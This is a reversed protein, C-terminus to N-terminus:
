SNGKQFSNNPDSVSHQGQENETTESPIAPPEEGSRGRLMKVLWAGVIRGYAVGCGIPIIFFIFFVFTENQNTRSMDGKPGFYLLLGIYGVVAGVAFGLAACFSPLCGWLWARWWPELVSLEPRKEREM